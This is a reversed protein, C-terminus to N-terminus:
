TRDINNYGGFDDNGADDSVYPNPLDSADTTSNPQGVDNQYINGAHAKKSAASLLLAVAPATVAVEASKRFLKRRSTESADTHDIDSM